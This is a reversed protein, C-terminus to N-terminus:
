AMAKQGEAIASAAEGLGAHALGLAAHTGAEQYSGPAVKELERRIDKAADEYTARAAAIDGARQQSLGLLLKEDESHEAPKTEAAVASSLIEIAAPYRRQFLAQVGRVPWGVGPVRPETGPNALLPEVAQLDGTAWFICAKLGLTEANARKLALARDVTALAEPFRRLASYTLALNNYADVDRPDLEIARSFADIAEELHGLRRQIFAIAITIDVNNPLAHEAQQFEALAGTFDRQGYYRYYGLALHTE